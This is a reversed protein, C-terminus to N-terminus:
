EETNEEAPEAPAEEVPVEEVQAVPIADKRPPMGGDKKRCCFVFFPMTVNILISLVLYLVANGPECSAFLDYLAIYQFVMAVVAIVFLALGLLLIVTMYSLIYGGNAAEGSFVGQLIMAFYAMYLPIMLAYMAITLGLLTKRRNKIKGKAVYQYQDSISGLIWMNGVPIWALWPKRIERRKAISYMGLSQLVYTLIAFGIVLLYAFAMVVLVIAVAAFGNAVPAHALIHYM